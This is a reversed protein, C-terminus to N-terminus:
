QDRCTDNAVQLKNLGSNDLPATKQGQPVLHKKCANAM